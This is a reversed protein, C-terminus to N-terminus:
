GKKQKERDRLSGFHSSSRQLPGLQRHTIKKKETATPDTSM